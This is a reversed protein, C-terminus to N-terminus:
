RVPRRPRAPAGESGLAEVAEILTEYDARTPVFVETTHDTLPRATNKARIPKM